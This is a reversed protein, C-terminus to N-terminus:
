ETIQLLLDIDKLCGKIDNELQLAEKNRQTKGKSATPNAEAEADIAVLREQKWQVAKTLEEFIDRQELTMGTEPDIDSGRQPRPLVEPMDGTDVNGMAGKPMMSGGCYRFRDQVMEKEAANNRGPKLQPKEPRSADVEAMIDHVPKKGGVPQRWNRPDEPDPRKHMSRPVNIEQRQPCPKRPAKKPEWREKAALQPYSVKSSSASASGSGYLKRLMRGAETECGFNKWVEKNQEPVVYNGGSDQFGDEEKEEEARRAGENSLEEDTIEEPRADFRDEDNQEYNDEEEEEEAEFETEVEAAGYPGRSPSAPSVDPSSVTPLEEAPVAPLAGGDAVSSAPRAEAAGGVGVRRAFPEGATSSSSAAM